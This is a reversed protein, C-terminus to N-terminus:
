SETAISSLVDLWTDKNNGARLNGERVLEPVTDIMAGFQRGLNAIAGNEDREDLIELLECMDSKFLSLRESGQLDLHRVYRTRINSEHVLDLTRGNGGAEAIREYFIEHYDCFVRYDGSSPVTPLAPWPKSDGGLCERLVHLTITHTLDYEDRIQKPDLKMSYFGSRLSGVVYREIELKILAERVPTVSTNLIASIRPPELPTDPPIQFDIILRKLAKYVQQTKSRAWGPQAEHQRYM